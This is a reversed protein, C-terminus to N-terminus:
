VVIRKNQTNAEPYINEHEIMIEFYKVQAKRITEGASTKKTEEKWKFCFNTVM